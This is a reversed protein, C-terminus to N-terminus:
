KNVLNEFLVVFLQNKWRVRVVAPPVQERGVRALRSGSIRQRRERQNHKEKEVCFGFIDVRARRYIEICPLAGTNFKEGRERVAVSSSGGAVDVAVGDGRTKVQSFAHHHHRAAKKVQALYVSYCIDLTQTLKYQVVEFEIWREWFVYTEIWEIM